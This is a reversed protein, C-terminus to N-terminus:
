KSPCADDQHSPSLCIRCKHARKVSSVCEAGPPLKGCPGTGSAWSFCIAQGAQDKSKGKTKGKGKAGDNKPIGARLRDLEERQSQRRRKQAKRKEQNALRKKNKAPDTEAGYDALDDTGPLHSLVAAETAVTPVGRAGMALWATAPHHM